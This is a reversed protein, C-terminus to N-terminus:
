SDGSASPIGSSSVSSTTGTSFSPAVAHRDDVLGLDGFLGAGLVAAIVRVVRRGTVRSPRDAEATQLALLVRTEHAALALVGVVDHQRAHQMARDQAGRDGVSPDDRDIGALSQGARANAGDDGALVQFRELQRPHRGQRVVHLGHQGGVLHAELALLDGEHDRIVAIRSAVRELRDIDLVVDERGDDVETVREVGIRRDDAVVELSARVVVDGVPIAAVLGSGLRDEGLRLDDDRLLDDVRAHM